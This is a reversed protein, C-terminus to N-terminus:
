RSSSSVYRTEMAIEIVDGGVGFRVVVVVVVVVVVLVVSFVFSM